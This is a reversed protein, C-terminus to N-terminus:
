LFACGFELWTHPSYWFLLLFFVVLIDPSQHLMYNESNWLEWLSSCCFCSNQHDDFKNEAGRFFNCYRLAASAECAAHTQLSIPLVYFAGIFYWHYLGGGPSSQGARHSLLSVPLSISSNRCCSLDVPAPPLPHLFGSPCNVKESQFAVSYLFVWHQCLGLFLFFTLYHGQFHSQLVQRLIPM